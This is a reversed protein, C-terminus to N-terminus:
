CEILTDASIHDCCIHHICRVSSLDNAIPQGAPPEGAPQSEWNIRTACQETQVCQDGKECTLKALRAWHERANQNVGSRQSLIELLVTHTHKCCCFPQMVRMNFDIEIGERLACICFAISLYQIVSHACGNSPLWLLLSVCRCLAAYLTVRTGPAVFHEYYKQARINRFSFWMNCACVNRPRASLGTKATANPAAPAHSEPAHCRM